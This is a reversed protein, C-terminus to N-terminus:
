EMRCAPASSTTTYSLTDTGLQRQTIASKENPHGYEIPDEITVVHCTRNANIHRIM